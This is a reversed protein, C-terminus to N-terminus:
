LNFSLLLELVKHLEVLNYRSIIIKKDEEIQNNFVRLQEDDQINFSLYQRLCPELALANNLTPFCATLLNNFVLLYQHLLLCSVNDDSTLLHAFDVHKM